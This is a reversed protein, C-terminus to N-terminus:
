AVDQGGGSGRSGLGFVGTECSSWIFQELMTWFPHVLYNALQEDQHRHSPCRRLCSLLRLCHEKDGSRKLIITNAIGSEPLKKTTEGSRKKIKMLGRNLHSNWEQMGVSLGVSVNSYVDGWGEIRCWMKVSYQLFGLPFALPQQHRGVGSLYM